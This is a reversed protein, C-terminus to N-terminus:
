ATEPFKDVSVYRTPVAYHPQVRATTEKVAEVSVTSPAFFGWLEGAILLATAVKVGPTTQSRKLTLVIHM